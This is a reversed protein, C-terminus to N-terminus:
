HGASRAAKLARHGLELALKDDESRTVASRILDRQLHSPLDGYSNLTVLVSDHGLNQSWAKLEEPTHCIKMGHQALMHRFSHPNFNRMGASEFAQKFAKRVPGATAWSERGLSAAPKGDVFTMMTAPFLPDEPGFGLENRLYEVWDAVIAECQEGPLAHDGFAPGGRRARAVPDCQPERRCRDPEKRFVPDADPSAIVRSLQAAEPISNRLSEDSLFIKIEISNTTYQVTSMM